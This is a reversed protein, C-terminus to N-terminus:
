SQSLDREMRRGVLPAASNPIRSVEEASGDPQTVIEPDTITFSPSKALLPM